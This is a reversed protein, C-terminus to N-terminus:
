SNDIVMVNGKQTVINLGRMGKTSNNKVMFTCSQNFIKHSYNELLYEIDDVNDSFIEPTWGNETMLKNKIWERRYQKKKEPSFSGQGFVVWKEYDEETFIVSHTLEALTDVGLGNMIESRRKEAKAGRIQQCGSCEGNIALEGYLPEDCNICTDNESAEVCKPCIDYEMDLVEFKTLKDVEKKCWDCNPM